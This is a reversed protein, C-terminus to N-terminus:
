VYKKRPKYRRAARSRQQPANGVSRAQLFEELDVNRIRLRPRESAKSVSLNIARLEGLDIWRRVTRRSVGVQEAIHEITHTM